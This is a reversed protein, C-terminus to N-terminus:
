LAARRRKIMMAGAVVGLGAMAFPEPVAEPDPASQDKLGILKWDPGNYSSLSTVRVGYIFNTTNGAGDLLGFDALSLGRSGVSQASGIEQTDIKYGADNWLSRTLTMKNGILSGSADLAQLSLDSNRGREWVLVKDVASSFTLDFDFNGKDETDIIHNLNLNTMVDSVISNDVGIALEEQKIYVSGNVQDGIDASAAANNGAGPDNYNIVAQNVRVFDNRTVGDIVVSNLMIDYKGYDSVLRGNADVKGSFNTTFSFGTTAQAPAGALLLCGAAMMGTWVSSNQIRM